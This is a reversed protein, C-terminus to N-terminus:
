SEASASNLGLTSTGSSSSIPDASLVTIPKMRPDNMIKATEQSINSKIEAMKADIEAFM